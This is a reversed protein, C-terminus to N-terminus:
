YNIMIRSLKGKKWKRTKINTESCTTDKKCNYIWQGILANRVPDKPVHYKKLVWIWENMM